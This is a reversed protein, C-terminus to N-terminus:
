CRFIEEVACQLPDIIAPDSFNAAVVSLETCGLIVQECGLLQLQNIQNQLVEEQGDNQCIVNRIIAETGAQGQQGLTTLKLGPKNYLGQSITTPSALLGVRKKKVQKLACQILSVFIPSNLLPMEAVLM